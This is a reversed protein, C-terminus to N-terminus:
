FKGGRGGRSGGGSSGNNKPRPTRTTRSYLYFDFRNTLQFSGPKMYSTASHQHKATKMASRMVLLTIGGVAVGILLAIFIKALPSLVIPASAMLESETERIFTEFGEYYRNQALYPLVEEMIADIDWDSIDSATQGNTLVYWDREEMSLLLLIGNKDEGYGLLHSDYYTEAFRRSSVSGLSDVTLIYLRTEYSGDILETILSDLEQAQRETLLGAEDIVYTESVAFGPTWFCLLLCAIMLAIWIRKM